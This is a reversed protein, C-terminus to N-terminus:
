HRAVAGHVTWADAVANEGDVGVVKVQQMLLFHFIRVIWALCKVAMVSGNRRVDSGAGGDVTGHLMSNTRIPLAAVDAICSVRCETSFVVITIDSTLKAVLPIQLPVAVQTSTRSTRSRCARSGLFRVDASMILFNQEGRLTVKNIAQNDDDRAYSHQRKCGKQRKHNPVQVPPDVIPHRQNTM